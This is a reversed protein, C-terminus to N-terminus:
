DTKTRINQSAENSNELPETVLSLPFSQFFCSIRLKKTKSESVDLAIKNSPPTLSM